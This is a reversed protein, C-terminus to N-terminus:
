NINCYISIVTLWYNETLLEGSSCPSVVSLARWFLFGFRSSIVSVQSLVYKNQVVFRWNFSFLNCWVYQFSSKNITLLMIPAHPMVYIKRIESKMKIKITAKWCWCVTSAYRNDRYSVCALSCLIMLTIPRYNFTCAPLLVATITETADTDCHNVVTYVCVCLPYRLLLEFTQVKIVRVFDIKDTRIYIQANRYQYESFDEDINLTYCTTLYM